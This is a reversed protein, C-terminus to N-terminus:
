SHFFLYIHPIHLLWMLYRFRVELLEGALHSRTCTENPSTALIEKTKSLEDQAQIIELDNKNPSIRPTAISCKKLLNNGDKDEVDLDIVPTPEICNAAEFVSDSQDLAIIEAEGSTKKKAIDDASHNRDLERSEQPSPMEEYILEEDDCNSWQDDEDPVPHKVEVTHARLEFSKVTDEEVATESSEVSKSNSEIPSLCEIEDEDIRVKETDAESLKDASALQSGIQRKNVVNEDKKCNDLLVVIDDCDDTKKSNSDVYDASIISVENGDMDCSLIDTQFSNSGIDNSGSNCRRKTKITFSQLPKSDIRKGEDAIYVQDEIESADLDDSHCYDLNTIDEIHCSEMEIIPTAPKYGLNVAFSDQDNIEEALFREQELASEKIDEFINYTKRNDKEDVVVDRISARLEGREVVCAEAEDEVEVCAEAEGGEELCAEAEGEVELCAEAEVGEEAYAEAEGGEEVYAEAESELEVCAEAGSGEEVFAEAEEGDEVFAEAEDGDEVFAEAEGEVEVCAQAEVGEEVFAEAEDGEEVFAEAEDGDEVFAEAEEVFAEAEGREEVFAEAEDGEEVFAEAEGREEM